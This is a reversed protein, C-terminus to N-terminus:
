GEEMKYQFELGTQVKAFEGRILLASESLQTSTLSGEKAARMLPLNSLYTFQTGCVFIATM